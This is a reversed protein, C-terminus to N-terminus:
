PSKHNPSLSVIRELETKIQVAFLIQFAKQKVNLINLKNLGILYSIKM